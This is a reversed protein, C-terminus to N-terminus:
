SFPLVIFTVRFLPLLFLLFLFLHLQRSPSFHISLTLHSPKLHDAAQNYPRHISLVIILAASCPRDWHTSRSMHPHVYLFFYQWPGSKINPRKPTAHRTYQVTVSSRRAPDGSRKLKSHVSYLSQTAHHYLSRMTYLLYYTHTYTFTYTYYYTIYTCNGCM